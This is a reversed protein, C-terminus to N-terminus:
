GFGLKKALMEALGRDRELREILRHFEDREKAAESNKFAQSWSKKGQIHEPVSFNGYHDNKRHLARLMDNIGCPSGGVIGVSTQNMPELNQTPAMPGAKAVDRALSKPDVTAGTAIGGGILRLIGRRDLM